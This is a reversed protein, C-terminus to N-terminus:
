NSVNSTTGLRRAVRLYQADDAVAKALDVGVELRTELQRAASALQLLAGIGFGEGQEGGRGHM